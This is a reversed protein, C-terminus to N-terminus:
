GHPLRPTYAVASEADFAAADLRRRVLDEVSSLPVRTLRGLKVIHLEGGAILQYVYARSCGLATAVERVDLLLKM